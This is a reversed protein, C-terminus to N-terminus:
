LLKVAAQVYDDRYALGTWKRMFTTHYEHFGAFEHLLDYFEDFILITGPAMYPHLSALTFLTGSYLDCDIHVVIPRSPTYTRLFDPLTEQFLGVVFSVRPDDLQPVQGDRNFHGEPRFGKMWTEPLGRFSDFGIFRSSPHKNIDLWQQISWGKYVGFELYDIPVDGLSENVYQYFPIKRTPSQTPSGADPNVFHKANAFGSPVTRAFEVSQNLKDFLEIRRKYLANAIPRLRM